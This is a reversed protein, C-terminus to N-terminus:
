AFLDTNSKTNDESNQAINEVADIWNQITAILPNISGSRYTDCYTKFSNYADGQWYDNSNMTSDITNFMSDISDNFDKLSQRLSDALVYINETSYELEDGM